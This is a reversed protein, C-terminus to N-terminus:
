QPRKPIKRNGSHNAPKRENKPKSKKIGLNKNKTYFKYVFDGNDYVTKNILNEPNEPYVGIIWLSSLLNIGYVSISHDSNLFFMLNFQNEILQQNVNKKYLLFKGAELRITNVLEQSLDFFLYLEFVDIISNIQIRKFISNQQKETTTKKREM